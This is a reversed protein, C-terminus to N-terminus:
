SPDDCRELGFIADRCTKLSEVGFSPDRCTKYTDAGFSPHRCTNYSAVGFEANECKNAVRIWHRCARQGAERWEECNRGTPGIYGPVQREAHGSCASCGGQNQVVTAESEGCVQGNHKANYKAVGCAAGNRERYREAGCVEGSGEKFEFGCVPAIGERYVPRECPKRQVDVSCSHRKDDYTASVIVRTRDAMELPMSLRETGPLLRELTHVNNAGIKVPVNEAPQEGKWVINLYLVKDLRQATCVLKNSRDAAAICATYALVQQDSLTNDIEYTSATTSVVQQSFSCYDRSFRQVDFTSGAGCYASRVHREKSASGMIPVAEIVASLSLRSSVSTSGSSCFENAAASFGEKRVVECADVRGRLQQDNVTLRVRGGALIKECDAASPEQGLGSVPTLVMTVIFLFLRNTPRTKTPM